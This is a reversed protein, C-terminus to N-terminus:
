LIELDFSSVQPAIWVAKGSGLSRVGFLTEEQGITAADLALWISPCSTDTAGHETQTTELYSNVLPNLTRPGMGKFCVRGFVGNGISQAFSVTQESQAATFLGDKLSCDLRRCRFPGRLPKIMASAAHQDLITKHHASRMSATKRFFFDSINHFM